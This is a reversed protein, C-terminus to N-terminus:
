NWIQNNNGDFCDFVQLQNGNTTDGNTLDICKPSSQLQLHHSDTYTWSQAALGDFCEWIKMGVGNAPNASTADLCFNTGAVLVKTNGDTLTWQQASSGNCDFIQVPTGNAFIAGEVDMCKSGDVNSHLARSTPPPPPPPTSEGNGPPGELWVQNRNGTSCEWIQLQNSNGSNGDTLDLCFDKDALKIQNESNYTWQQAPLNDFCQWIKMGVGNAPSSGADLCFGTGEVEIHGAVGRQIMWNQADSDNCDFIQVATGNEFAAGRVDICKESSSIPHLTGVPGVKQRPVVPSALGGLGNSLLLTAAVLGNLSYM